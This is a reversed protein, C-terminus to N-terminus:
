GRKVPPTATMLRRVLDAQRTTGTKAFLNQLHTRITTLSVGLADAADQPGLGQAVARLVRREALTL